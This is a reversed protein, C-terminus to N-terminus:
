LIQRQGAVSRNENQKTMVKPNRNAQENKILGNRQGKENWKAHNM